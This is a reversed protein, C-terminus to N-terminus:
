IEMILIDYKGLLTRRLLATPKLNRCSTHFHRVWDGQAETAEETEYCCM